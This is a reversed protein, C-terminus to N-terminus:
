ERCSSYVCVLVLDYQTGLFNSTQHQLSRDTLHPTAPMPHLYPTDGPTIFKSWKHTGKLVMGLVQEAAVIALAYSAATRNITSIVLTGGPRTLAVLSKVFQPVNEVHEIVESAVVADFQLGASCSM